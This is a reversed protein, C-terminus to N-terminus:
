DLGLVGEFVDDEAVMLEKSLWVKLLNSNSPFDGVFSVLKDNKLAEAKFTNESTKILYSVTEACKAIAKFDEWRRCKINVAKSSSVVDNGSKQPTVGPSTALNSIECQLSEIKEELGEIKETIEGTEGLSETIIGLQGILRDLDKEHEKLVNIIFDLAELAENKNSKPEM